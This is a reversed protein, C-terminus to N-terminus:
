GSRIPTASMLVGTCIRFGTKALRKGSGSSPRQSSRYSYAWLDVKTSDLHPDIGDPRSSFLPTEGAVVREAFSGPPLLNVRDAGGRQRLLGTLQRSPDHFTVLPVASDANELWQVDGSQFPIPVHSTGIPIGIQDRTFWQPGITEQEDIGRRGHVVILPDVPAVVGGWTRSGMWLQGQEDRGTATIDVRYEGPQEFVVSNGAPQFYGFRNTQGRIVREELQSIDSHPIHQLRVEVETTIPPSVVLGPNFGDGVEFHTGPLVATDLALARGVHVKYTGGGSWTNGWIDDITGRSPLSTSDMKPLRSTLALIWLLSNIPMPSIAAARM